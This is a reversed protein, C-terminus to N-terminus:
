TGIPKIKDQGMRKVGEELNAVATGLAKMHPAIAEALLRGQWLEYLKITSEYRAYNNVRLWFIAPM